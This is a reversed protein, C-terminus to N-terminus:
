MYYDLYSKLPKKRDEAIYAIGNNAQRSFDVTLEVENLWPM